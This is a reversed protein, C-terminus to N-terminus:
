KSRRRRLAVLSMSVLGIAGLAVSSPEPIAPVDLAIQQVISGGIQTFTILASFTSTRGDPAQLSDTGTTFIGTVSLLLNGNSRFLESGATATFKGFLENEIEFGFGGAVNTDINTGSWTTPPMAPPEVVNSFIGLGPTLVSNGSTQFKTSLSLNAQDQVVDMGYVGVSGTGVFAAQSPVAALALLAGALLVHQLRIM